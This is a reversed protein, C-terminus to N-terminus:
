RLFRCRRVVRPENGDRQRVFFRELPLKIILAASLRVPMRGHAATEAGSGCPADPHMNPKVVIGLGVGALQREGATVGGADDAAAPDDRCRCFIAAMGALALM